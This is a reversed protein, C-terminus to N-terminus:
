GSVGAVLLGKSRLMQAIENPVPAPKLQKLRTTLKAISAQVRQRSIGDLEEIIADEEQPTPTGFCLQYALKYNRHKLELENTAADKSKVAQIRWEMMMALSM